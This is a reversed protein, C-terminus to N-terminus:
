GPARLPVRYLWLRRGDACELVQTPAVARAEFELSALWAGPRLERLAKEAARDMSEPRQFVYVLDYGSWDAAWIDGRRVRAFRCRWACLLRLPWSWEIGDIRARPYARQLERLGAGLGCGADLVRADPALPVAAALNDLAGTPTPFLPADRWARMPYVLALLALPLLWGWAPMTGALGSAALSLPFGLAVFLRRWPTSGIGNLAAGALVAAACAVILPAGLAGLLAFLAWALSWCLLAPLPWTLRWERM